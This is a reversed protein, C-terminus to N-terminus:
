LAKLTEGGKFIDDFIYLLNWMCGTYKYMEGQASIELFSINLWYILSTQVHFM